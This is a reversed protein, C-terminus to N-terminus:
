WRAQLMFNASVRTYNSLRQTSDGVCLFKSCLAGLTLTRIGDERCGIVLHNEPPQLIPFYEMGQESKNNSPSPSSSQMAAAAAAPQTEQKAPKRQRRNMAASELKQQYEAEKQIEEEIMAQFLFDICLSTSIHINQNEGIRGRGRVAKLNCLYAHLM